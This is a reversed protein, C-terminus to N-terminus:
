YEPCSGTSNVPTVEIKNNSNLEVKIQCNSIDTEDIPNIVKATKDPDNGTLYGYEVLDGLTITTSDCISNDIPLYKCEQYYLEAASIIDTILLEYNKNRAGSIVGAITLGTISLVIALIVITAILEILTFGRNNKM